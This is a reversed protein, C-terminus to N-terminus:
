PSWRFHITPLNSLSCNDTPGTDSPITRSVLIALKSTPVYCVLFIRSTTIRVYFTTPKKIDLTSTGIVPQKLSYKTVTRQSVSDQINISLIQSIFFSTAMSCTVKFDKTNLKTPPWSISELLNTILFSLTTTWKDLPM